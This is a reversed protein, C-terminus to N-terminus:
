GSITACWQRRKLGIEYIGAGPSVLKGTWRASWRDINVIDPDPSGTGGNSRDAGYGWDFNINKELRTLVPDGELDRNNFYEAWLGNQGEKGQPPFLLNSPVVPLELRTEAIGRAFGIKADEGIRNKMGQLPSIGYHGFNAGSGGGCMQAVNANPGILAISSIDKKNLPLFDNNNKLLVISKQAVNLALARREKTDAIGGYTATSEDFLGAKFMVRLIRRVKDDVVSEPVVGQQVAELLKEGMHRGDPMELDLGHMATNVTSRVGGWDSVIAGTFGWEKKIIENLLYNNECCYDGLVKIYAAMITWGDAEQIAAKYAPFYIERLAREDVDVDVSMRNWEQNNCLYPKTCTVVRRSQVGKVFAVTMRSMLFPDEGFAEFTRGGHPVRAINVQPALLMNYGLVRTEAGMEQGVIRILSDDFTAAMNIASGYNSAAGKANAGLPGDSMTLEPIGLRVNKQTRSLFQSAVIISNPDSSNQALATNTIMDGQKAGSVQNIKEELTMRSLLDEIREEVPLNRNKYPPLPEIAHAQSNFVILLYLFLFFYLFFRKKLM